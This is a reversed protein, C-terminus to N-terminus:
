LAIFEGPTVLKGTAHQVDAAGITNRGDLQEPDEPLDWYNPPVAVIVKPAPV